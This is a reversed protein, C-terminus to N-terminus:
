VQSIKLIFQPSEALKLLERAAQRDSGFYGDLDRPRLHDKPANYKVM